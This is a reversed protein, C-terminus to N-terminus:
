ALHVGPLRRSISGGMVFCIDGLALFASSFATFYLRDDNTTTIIFNEHMPLRPLFTLKQTSQTGSSVEKAAPRSGLSVPLFM